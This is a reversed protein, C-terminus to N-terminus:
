LHVNGPEQSAACSGFNILMDNKGAHFFSLSSGVATAAPLAGTGTLILRIREEKDEYVDFGIRTQKRKLGLRSIVEKAEAYLAIYLYFM